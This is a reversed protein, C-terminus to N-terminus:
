TVDVDFCDEYDAPDIELFGEDTTPSYMNARVTKNIDIVKENVEEVMAMIETRLLEMAKLRRKPRETIKEPVLGNAGSMFEDYKNVQENLLEPFIAESVAMSSLSGGEAGGM